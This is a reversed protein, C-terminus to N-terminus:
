QALANKRYGSLVSAMALPPVLGVGDAPEKVGALWLGTYEFDAM